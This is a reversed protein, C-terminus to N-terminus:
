TPTPTREADSRLLRGVEDNAQLRAEIDDSIRRAEDLDRTLDGTDIAAANLRLLDLRLMELAAVVSQLRRDSEPDPTRDRLVAAQRELRLALDPLNGFATRQSDPLGDFLATLESRLAVSTPEGASPLATTRGRLGISAVRFLGRGVRGRLIRSWWSDEPRRSALFRRVLLTPIAVSGAFGIFPLVTGSADGLLFAGVTGAAGLVVHIATTRPAPRRAEGDADSEAALLAPRLASHGFGAEILRRVSSVLQASRLGALGATAACAALYMIEVFSGAFWGRAGLVIGSLVAMGFSVASATVATAIESGARDAERVFARVPAAIENTTHTARLAVAFAEASDWRAAAERALCRDIAAAFKPPVGDRVTALPASAVIAKRALIAVASDGDIPPRGTLAFYAVAGLSYLDSRGDIADGCSQEPSMYRPTGVIAGPSSSSTGSEVRAIGFDTVIARGSDRELLINDPKVDRHIVGHGHAHALAWAVEQTIRIAEAVRLPGTRAVRAALTEGDVFGMVFFALDDHEEVAHIPVIHPHSLAAATRAERVFRARHAANMALLPPLLKIAVLRELAVDRALFVIGMGGRGLERVISYRGAVVRQLVVLEPSLTPSSSTNAM